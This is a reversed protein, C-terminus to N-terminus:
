QAVVCSLPAVICLLKVYDNQVIGHLPSYIPFTLIIVESICWFIHDQSVFNLIKQASPSVEGM